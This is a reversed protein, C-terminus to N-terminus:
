TSIGLETINAIDCNFLFTAVSVLVYDLLWVFYDTKVHVKVSVMGLQDKSPLVHLQLYTCYHVMLPENAFATYCAEQGNYYKYKSSVEINFGQYSTRGNSTFRLYINPETSVFPVPFIGSYTTLLRGGINTGEYVKLFDASHETEFDVILLTIKQEVPSSISWRCDIGDGYNQPYNPSKIYNSASFTDECSGWIGLGTTKYSTHLHSVTAAIIM